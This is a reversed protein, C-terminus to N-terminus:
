SPLLYVQDFLWSLPPKTQALSSLTKVLGAQASTKEEVITFCKGREVASWEGISIWISSPTDKWGGENLHWFMYILCGSKKCIQSYEHFKGAQPERKSMNKWLSLKLAYFLCRFIQFSYPYRQCCRQYHSSLRLCVAVLFFLKPVNNSQIYSSM